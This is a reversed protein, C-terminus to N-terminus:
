KLKPIARAAWSLVHQGRRINTHKVLRVVQFANQTLPVLGNSPLFPLLSLPPPPTKTVESDIEVVGSRKVDNRGTAMNSPSPAKRDGKGMM